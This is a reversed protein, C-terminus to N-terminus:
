AAAQSGPEPLVTVPMNEPELGLVILAKSLGHFLGLGIALEALQEPTFHRRLEAVDSEALPQPTTVIADALRLAAREPAPLSSTAYGDTIQAVAAEDLGQTRAGAFRV